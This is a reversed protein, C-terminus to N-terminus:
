YSVPPLQDVVEVADIASLSHRNDRPCAPMCNAFLKNKNQWRLAEAIGRVLRHHQVVGFSRRVGFPTRKGIPLISNTSETRSLPKTNERHRGRKSTRKEVYGVLIAAANM